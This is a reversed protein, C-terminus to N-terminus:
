PTVIPNPTLLVWVSAGYANQVQIRIYYTTRRPLNTFTYSTTNPGTIFTSVGNTFNASTSRQITFLTENNANDTWTLDIRARTTSTTRTTGTFNSPVAPTAPVTVSVTATPASSSTNRIAVVYYAYTNGGAVTTDTYSVSGVGNRAPRTSLLSYAGGNVNRWIQFGTENTANDRFTLTIRPGTLINAQLTATLNTPANPPPTLSITVSVINTYASKGAANVAAVQYRYTNGAAVAADVLNMNGTGTLAAPAAIQQFAGGNVSREVVFGTENSANDVWTLAIQPGTQLAATLNTPAAPPFAVVLPDSMSRVTMSPHEAGYGVTNLAIVRYQYSTTPTITETFTRQQHVNPQGLPSEITARDEWPGNGAMRQVVFATENISNDNWTLTLNNGNLSWALGDPKNPPMAVSVPRMMDMEEHSLIHCHYVYEWGFNVLKNIIPATPVGQPDTSNFMATSGEPMMPNLM